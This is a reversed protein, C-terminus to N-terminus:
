TREQPLDITTGITRRGILLVRKMERYIIQFTSIGWQIGWLGVFVPDNLGHFFDL